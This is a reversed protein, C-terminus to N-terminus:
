IRWNHLTEIAQDLAARQDPQEARSRLETYTSLALGLAVVDHDTSALSAANDALNARALDDDVFRAAVARWREVRKRLDSEALAWLHWAARSSQDLAIARTALEDVIQPGRGGLWYANALGVLARVNTPEAAVLREYRAIEDDDTLATARRHESGTSTVSDHAARGLLTVSTALAAAGFCFYV